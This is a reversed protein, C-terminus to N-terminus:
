RPTMDDRVEIVGVTNRVDADVANRISPNPAVGAVEVEGDRVALLPRAGRLRPDQAFAELVASGIERDSTPRQWASADPAGAFLFNRDQKVGRVGTGWADATAFARERASSVQGALYVTGGRVGVRILRSDLRLGEHLRSEVEVRVNQDSHAGLVSNVALWVRVVRAGVTAAADETAVHRAQWSGVDGTLEVVGDSSSVEIPYPATVPDRRLTAGVGDAVEPDPVFARVVAVRDIVSRVAPGAKADPSRASRRSCPTCEGKSPSSETWRWVAIREGILWPDRERVFRVSM